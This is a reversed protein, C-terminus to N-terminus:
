EPSVSTIGCSAAGCTVTCSVSCTRTCPSIVVSLGVETDLPEEAPLLQLETIDMM